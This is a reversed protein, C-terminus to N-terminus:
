LTLKVRRAVLSVDRADLISSEGPMNAAAVVVVRGVCSLITAEHIWRPRCRRLYRWGRRGARGLCMAGHTRAAYTVRARAQRRLFGRGDESALGCSLAAPPRPGGPVSARTEMRLARPMAQRLQSSTDGGDNGIGPIYKKKRGRRGKAGSLEGIM